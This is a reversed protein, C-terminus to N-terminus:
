INKLHVPYCYRRDVICRLFDLLEERLREVKHFLVNLIVVRPIPLVLSVLFGASTSGHFFVIIFSLFIYGLFM